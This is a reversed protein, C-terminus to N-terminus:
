RFQFFELLEEGSQVWWVLQLNEVAMMWKKRIKRTNRFFNAQHVVLRRITYM